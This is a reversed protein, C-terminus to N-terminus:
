CCLMLEMKMIGQYNGLQAIKWRDSFRVTNRIVGASVITCLTQLWSCSHQAHMSGIHDLDPSSDERFAMPHIM